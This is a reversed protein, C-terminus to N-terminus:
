GKLFVDTDSHHVAKRVCPRGDRHKICEKMIGVPNDRYLQFTVRLRINGRYMDDPGRSEVSLVPFGIRGTYWGDPHVVLIPDFGWAETTKERITKGDIFTLSESEYSPSAGMFLVFRTEPDVQDEIAIELIDMEFPFTGYDEYRVHSGYDLWVSFREGPGTIETISM